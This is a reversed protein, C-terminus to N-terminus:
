VEYQLFGIEIWEWVEQEEVIRLKEPPQSEAEEIEHLRTEMTQKITFIKTHVEDWRKLVQSEFPEVVSPKGKESIKAGLQKM